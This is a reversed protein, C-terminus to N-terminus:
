EGGEGGAAAYLADLREKLLLLLEDLPREAADEPLPPLELRPALGPGGAHVLSPAGPTPGAAGSPGAPRAGPVPPPGFGRSGGVLGAATSRVPAGGGGGAAGGGASRVAAPDLRAVEVAPVPGRDRVEANWAAARAPGAPQARDWHVIKGSREALDFGASGPPHGSALLRPDTVYHCSACTKARTAPDGLHVLGLRRREAASAEQHSRVYEGAPGHCSECSVGSEVEWAAQGAPVTGHCDMCVAAGKVMLDGAPKGYYLTAIEVAKPLRRLL